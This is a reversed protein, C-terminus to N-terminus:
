KVRIWSACSPDPALPSPGCPQPDRSASWCSACARPTRPGSRERARELAGRLREARIPKLLYDVAAVEFARLAYEDYATTFVIPLLSEGRRALEIGDLGPMRVDLLVLDPAREAIRELAEVGDGAEGCVEVGPMRELMRRLRRRAPPEDDVILVRM